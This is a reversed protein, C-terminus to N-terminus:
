IPPKDEGYQAELAWLELCRCHFYLLVAMGQVEYETEGKTIPATCAVCSHAGPRAAIRKAAVRQLLGGQMLTRLRARVESEQLRSEAM